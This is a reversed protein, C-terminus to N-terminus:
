AMMPNYGMRFTERQNRRVMSRYMVDGDLYIPRDNDTDNFARVYANYMASEMSDASAGGSVNGLEKILGSAVMGIWETNRELPVIAEKGAEGIIANGIFTPVDVIGGTALTPLKGLKDSLWSGNWANAARNWTSKVTESLGVSLSLAKSKLGNWKNIFNQVISSASLKATFTATKSSISGWLSKLSEFASDKFNKTLNTTLTATKTKIAGWWGAIKQITAAYLNGKKNTTLTVTKSKIADWNKKLATLNPLRFGSLDVKFPLTFDGFADEFYQKVPQVVNEDIWDGISTFASAIGALIGEGVMKGPEEMEKAPSAIGFAARFGNIFPILVYDKFWNLGGAIWDYIGKFIGAWFDGAFWTGDGDADIYKLFYAKIDEWAQKAYGDILAGAAGIASGVLRWFSASLGSWDISDMASTFKNYMEEGVSHWDIGAFWDSANNFASKIHEVISSIGDMIDFQEFDVWEYMGAGAGSNSAGGGGGSNNDAPLRNLEDFPALYKLAEKAAAGAGGVSDALADAGDKARYWGSAGSLKAFVMTLVNAFKTVLSVLSILIPAINTYLTGFAAGVQNKMQATAMKVDSLAKHYNAWQGGAAKTFNDFHEAGEKVADTIGRIVSRILRYKAIRAISSAFTKMKPASKAAANGASSAASTVGRTAASFREAMNRAKGFGSEVSELKEM